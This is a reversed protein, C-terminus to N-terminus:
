QLTGKRTGDNFQVVVPGASATSTTILDGVESRVLAFGRALPALPQHAQLVRALGALRATHHQVLTPGMRNLRMATEELRQQAQGVLRVPDPLLRKVMALHAKYDTIQGQMERALGARASALWALVDARVPVAMEAAATPTPARMDAAYDCLTTDTEHGVASIVPIGSGAVARVLAEDNFPALDEPSGGGRAVILLDPKRAEPLANFGQVAKVVDGAATTGQVTVPWVVVPVPCRARLRHLIDQIVAGTPSTIVGICRPLLPIPKKRTSEFLGEALLKTKLQEFQQMLAGAGVAEFRVVQLQYSSRAKYTTIKGHAIVKDGTQPLTAHAAVNTRWMVTNIVATDDKLDVYLHGNGHLTAKGVEGLVAVYPFSEQLVGDIAGALQSVTLPPVGSM